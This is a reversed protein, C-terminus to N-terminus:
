STTSSTTPATSGHMSDWKSYPVRAPYQRSMASSSPNPTGAVTLAHARASSSDGQSARPRARGRGRSRRGRSGSPSAVRAIGSSTSRPTIARDTSVIVRTAPTRGTPQCVREAELTFM